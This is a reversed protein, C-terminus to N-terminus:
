HPRAGEHESPRLCRLLREQAKLDMFCLGPSIYSTGCAAQFVSSSTCLSAITLLMKPLAPSSRAALRVAQMASLRSGTPSARHSSPAPPSSCRESARWVTVLRSLVSYSLGQVGCIVMWSPELPNRPRCWCGQYSSPLQMALYAKLNM